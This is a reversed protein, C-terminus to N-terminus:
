DDVGDVLALDFLVKTVVFDGNSPGDDSTTFEVLVHVYTGLSVM